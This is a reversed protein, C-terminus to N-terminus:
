KFAKFISNGIKRGITSMASNTMRDLAKDEKSKKQKAQKKNIKEQEQLQKQYEIEQNEKQIQETLTEFASINELKTDYKGKFLSNNLVNLRITNDITTMSSEPPLITVKEVISPEGNEQLFSVLAEGTSLSKIAEETNFNPNPRFSDAASKVVKAESPTYAHLAHQVKNQLQALVEDPIDKPNQSIFYLGVGKSRILKVIQVINKLIYDPMDEFILHAEDFFLVLKPKDLDGVEPLTNYLENLLWLLFSSYLNPKKVLTTSDLINIYGKGNLASFKIFDKIDFAPEGFFYDGGESELILLNRQIAGISQLTVNGYELTYEKRKDGVYQLLLRLDKLDILKLNKDSAIKFVIALVGEQAETLGLMRALLQYGINDITTRIPHGLTSYVDWFHTPFDNFTFNDIKLTDLREKLKDNMQGKVCMGALDGKIDTLLVPVGASSCSEALVKLTITKGTGSAGTILGHRNAMNTLLVAETSDNKGVLIKNNIYM